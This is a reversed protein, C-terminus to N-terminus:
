VAQAPFRAWPDLRLDRLGSVVSFRAPLVRGM